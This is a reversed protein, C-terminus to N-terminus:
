LPPITVYGNGACRDFTFFTRKEAPPTRIQRQVYQEDVVVAEEPSSGLNEHFVLSGFQFCATVAGGQQRKVRRRQVARGLVPGPRELIRDRAHGREPVLQPVSPGPPRKLEGDPLGLRVQDVIVGEGTQTGIHHKGAIARRGHDRQVVIGQHIGPQPRHPRILREAVHALKGAARAVSSQGPVGKFADAGRDM